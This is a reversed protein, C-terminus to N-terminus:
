QPISITAAGRIRVSNDPDIFLSSLADVRQASSANVGGTHVGAETDIGWAQQHIVAVGEVDRNRLVDFALSDSTGELDWLWNANLQGADSREARITAWSAHDAIDGAVGFGDPLTDVLETLVADSYFMPDTPYAPEVSWGSPVQSVYLRGGQGAADGQTGLWLEGSRFSLSSVAPEWYIPDTTRFAYTTGTLRQNSAAWDPVDIHTLMWEDNIQDISLAWLGETPDWALDRFTTTQLADDGLRNVGLDINGLKHLRGPQTPDYVFISAGLVEGDETVANATYTTAPDTLKGNVFAIVTDSLDLTECGGCDDVESVSPLGEVTLNICGSAFLAIPLWRNM